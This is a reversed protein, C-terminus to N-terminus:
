VAEPVRRPGRAEQAIHAVVNGISVNPHAMAPDRLVEALRAVEPHRPGVYVQEFEEPSYVGWDHIMEFAIDDASHAIGLRVFDPMERFNLAQVVMSFELREIEGADRLEKVFALNKLLRAFTGGRRLVAYTEPTTADVSVHVMEVRGALDLDRWAREDLLQGNTHLRFRLKPFEARNLRKILRRFHASGFPDGSGTIYVSTADRLMPVFSSELQDDLRKQKPKGVAIIETRCSPCSLNCSRDHSLKLERPPPASGDAEFREILAQAPGSDRPLLKRGSIFSCDLHSCYKFDGDVISRRIKKVTTGSWAGPLDDIGGIPTPLWDPCCINVSGQDLTEMTDFPKTCFHTKLYSKLDADNLSANTAAMKKIRRPLHVNRERWYRWQESPLLYKPLFM